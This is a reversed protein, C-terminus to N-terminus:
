LMKLYVLCRVPDLEQLRREWCQEQNMSDKGQESVPHLWVESREEEVAYGHSLYEWIKMSRFRQSELCSLGTHAIVVWVSRDEYMWSWGSRPKVVRELAWESLAKLPVIVFVQSFWQRLPSDTVLWTGDLVFVWRREVCKSRDVEVIKSRDEEV